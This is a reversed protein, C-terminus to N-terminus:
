KKLIGYGGYIPKIENVTIVVNEQYSKVINIFEKAKKRKVHAIMVDYNSHMGEGKLITVAFGHKRIKEVLEIGYQEKVIIEIRTTGIGLKEELMSGIYNGLAFGVAYVLIKMPDKNIDKLVSSVLLVWIVSEFLGIISGKLREGKTILVIRTTAM